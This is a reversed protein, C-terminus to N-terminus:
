RIIEEFSQMIYVHFDKM